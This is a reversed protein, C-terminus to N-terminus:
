IGGEVGDQYELYDIGEDTITISAWENKYFGTHLEVFGKSELDDCAKEIQRPKYNV